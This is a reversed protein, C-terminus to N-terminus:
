RMAKMWSRHARVGGAQGARPSKGPAALARETENKGQLALAQLILIEIVLGMRGAPEAQKLLRDSLALGAEHDNQALLM